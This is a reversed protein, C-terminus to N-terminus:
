LDKETFENLSKSKLMALVADYKYDEIDQQEEEKVNKKNEEKTENQEANKPEKEQEASKENGEKQDPEVEAEQENRELLVQERSEDRKGDYDIEAAM